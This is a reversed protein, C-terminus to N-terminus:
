DLALKKRPKQGDISHMLGFQGGEEEKPQEVTLKGGRGVFFASDSQTTETKEGRKTLTKHHLKHNIMVQNNDGIQEFTLELVLKGKRGKTGNVIQSLAIESLMASIQEKVVGAGLEDVFETVDTQTTQKQQTM